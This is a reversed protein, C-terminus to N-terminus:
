KRAIHYPLYSAKALKTIVVVPFPRNFDYIISNHNAKKYVHSEFVHQTIHKM